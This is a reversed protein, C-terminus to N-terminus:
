LIDDHDNEQILHVIKAFDRKTLDNTIDVWDGTTRKQLEFCYQSNLGEKPSYDPDYSWKVRFQYDEDPYDIDKLEDPYISFKMQLRGNTINAEIKM